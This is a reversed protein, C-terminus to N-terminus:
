LTPLDKKLEFQSIHHRYNEWEIEKNEILSHFIHDGLAERLFKSKRAVEIAEGLSTPLEEVGATAKEERSWSAVDKEAEKPLAYKKQIGQLGAALMASFALYPNCAPDPSRFEARATEEHGAKNAPIRVLASRNKLGWLIHTPAEYGTVLRKYSNVWQNTVIAMERAHRLLGAVYHKAVPSMQNKERADYFANREAAGKRAAHFLSQHVHMGSGNQGEIPKPMFTAHVGHQQAVEKATLRYTMVSDAMTLADMHRLDIEHQGPAVEHHSSHVPIGLEELTLVTQRRMDSGTDLPTLDFYGGQDTPEPRDTSKFYFFEIEPGVYFTFGLQAARKLHRKLCHRPDGEFPRGDMYHIDAFMRAVANERPRWPLIQFTKPDCIAVMDHEESRAFSEISSGDVGVGEELAKELSDITIAFSKLFGLIDTFWIRIFKVDHERAQQSLFTAADRRAQLGPKGARRTVRSSM